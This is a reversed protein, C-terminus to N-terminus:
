DKIKDTEQVIIGRLYRNLTEKVKNPVKKEKHDQVQHTHDKHHVHVGGGENASCASDDCPILPNV